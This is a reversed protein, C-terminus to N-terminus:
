VEGAERAKVNHYGYIGLISIALMVFEGGDLKDAFLAATAIVEFSLAIFFKRSM